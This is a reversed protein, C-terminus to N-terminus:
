YALRKFRKSYEIPVVERLREYLSIYIYGQETVYYEAGRGEGRRYILGFSEMIDLVKNCRDLPMNSATCVRTKLAPFGDRITTLLEYIIDHHCRKSRALMRLCV